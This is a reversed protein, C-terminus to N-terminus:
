LGVGRECRSQMCSFFPICHTLPDGFTKGIFCCFCLQWLPEHHYQPKRQALKRKKRRCFISKSIQSKVDDECVIRRYTDDEQAARFPGPPRSRRCSLNRQMWQVRCNSYNKNPSYCRGIARQKVLHGVCPRAGVPSLQWWWTARCRRTAAWRSYPACLACLIVGFM